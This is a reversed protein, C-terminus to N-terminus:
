SVVFRTRAKSPKSFGAGAKKKKITKKISSFKRPLPLLNLCPFPKLFDTRFSSDKYALLKALDLFLNATKWCGTSQSSVPGRKAGPLYNWRPLFFPLLLVLFPLHAVLERNNGSAFYDASRHAFMCALPLCQPLLVLEKEM